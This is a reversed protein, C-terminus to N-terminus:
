PTRLRLYRQREGPAIGNTFSFNGGAGFQNTAISVWNSLPLAVNTATLVAYSATPPGNTGTIIVNTGSVTISTFGPQTTSALEIKFVTGYGFEGGVLTTGYLTSGSLTLAALPNAGDLGAFNKLVAYDGGNTNVMFVTGLGSSGGYYTTGYLTSGSLV